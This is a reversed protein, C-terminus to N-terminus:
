IATLGSTREYLSLLLYRVWTDPNVNATGIDRPPAVGRPWFWVKMYNPARELAYVGGGNQNFAPGYSRRERMYAGCGANGNVLWNCDMQKWSGTMGQAAHAPM